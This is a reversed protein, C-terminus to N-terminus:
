WVADPHARQLYQLSTLVAGLHETHRGNRGGEQMWGDRPVNLGAQAAVREIEARWPAKLPAPDPAIGVAILSHEVDDTAFMEGTFPWVRELADQARTYSEETGDGLVIMWEAALTRHYRMEKVSKAAIAALTEDRSPMLAEYFPVAFASYVLHRAMTFAFDGNPQEALLVNRYDIETRHYALRDEDRGRGEVEGAYTYFNRAQGILDLALNPMALDLELVPAHGCWESIRHGLVLASDAQRLAYIFLAARQDM